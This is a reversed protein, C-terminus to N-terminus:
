FNNISAENNKEMVIFKNVKNKYSDNPLHTFIMKHDSIDNILLGSQEVSIMVFSTILLVLLRPNYEQQYPLGPSFGKPFLLSLIIILILTLLFKWYILM